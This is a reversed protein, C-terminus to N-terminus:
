RSVIRALCSVLLPALHEASLADDPGAPRRLVALADENRGAAAYAQVLPGVPLERRHLRAQELLVSLTSAAGDSSTGAAMRMMAAYHPAALSEAVRSRLVHRVLRQAPPRELLEDAPM